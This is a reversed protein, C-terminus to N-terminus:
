LEFVGFSIQDYTSASSFVRSTTTRGTSVSEPFMKNGNAIAVKGDDFFKQWIGVIQENIAAVDASEDETLDRKETKAKAKIKVIKSKCLKVAHLGLADDYRYTEEKRGAKYTFQLNPQESNVDDALANFLAASFRPKEPNLIHAVTKIGMEANINNVNELVKDRIYAQKAKKWLGLANSDADNLAPLGLAHTLEVLMKATHKLIFDTKWGNKVANIIRSSVFEMLEAIRKKEDKSKIVFVVKKGDQMAGVFENYTNNTVEGVTSNQVIVDDESVDDVVIFKKPPASVVPTKESEDFEDCKRLFEEASHFQEPNHANWRWCVQVTNSHEVYQVHEIYLCHDKAREKVEAIQNEVELVTMKESM